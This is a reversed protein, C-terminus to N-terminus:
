PLPATVTGSEAGISLVVSANWSAPGKDAAGVKEITASVVRIDYSSYEITGLTRLVADFSGTITLSLAIRSKAGTKETNVSLVTVVGGQARGKRELTELFPVIDEQSLLFASTATEASALAPLAEKAARVRDIQTQAASVETQLTTAKKEVKDVTMGAWVCLGVSLALIALASGLHIFPTRNM